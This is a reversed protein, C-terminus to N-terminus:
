SVQKILQEIKSIEALTTANALQTKLEEREEETLTFTENSEEQTAPGNSIADKLIENALETPSDHQGFLESSQTREKDKIKKFDLIKLSSIRWIVWLRYYKHSTVPNEMLYLNKLRKAQVLPELSTLSKIKNNILVISEVNPVNQALNSQISRVSNKAILITKLRPSYPINGLHRIDNGTFDIAEIITSNNNNLVGLNEIMFINKNRLMLVRQKEPDTYISANQVVDPTLKM